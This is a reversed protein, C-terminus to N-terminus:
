RKRGFFCLSSLIEEGDELVIDFGVKNVEVVYVAELVRDMRKNKVKEISALIDEESDACYGFEKIFFKLLDDSVVSTKAGGSYTFSTAIKLETALKKLMESM